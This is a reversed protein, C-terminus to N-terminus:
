KQAVNELENGLIDIDSGVAGIAGEAGDGNPATVYNGVVRFGSQAYVGTQATTMTFKALVWRVAYSGTGTAWVWFAREITANGVRSTAGPYVILAKPNSETGNSGLNVAAGYDTETIQDVGDGIYAIDGAALSNAAKPITRWPNGWSGDGTDDHGTAIAFYICRIGRNQHCPAM